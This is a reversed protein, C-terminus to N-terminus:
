PSPRGAACAPGARLRVVAAPGLVGSPDLGGIVRLSVAPSNMIPSMSRGGFTDAGGLRRPRRGGGVGNRAAGVWSRPNALLILTPSLRRRELLSPIRGM